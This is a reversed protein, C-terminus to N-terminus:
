DLPKDKIEAEGDCANCISNEYVSHLVWTQTEEDWKAWADVLVDTSGCYSCVKKVAEMLLGM